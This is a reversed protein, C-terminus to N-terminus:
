MDHNELSLKDGVCIGYKQISGPPLELTAYAPFCLSLGLWPKLQEVVRVVQYDKDLYVVDIAFRMFMMHISNCPTILLGTGMPLYAPSRLMLGRLRSCFGDAVQVQLEQGHIKMVIKQMCGVGLPM